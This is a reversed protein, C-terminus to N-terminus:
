ILSSGQEGSVQLRCPFHSICMLSQLVLNFTVFALLSLSHYLLLPFLHIICSSALIPSPQRVKLVIRYPGLVEGHCWQGGALHWVVWVPTSLSRRLLMPSNVQQPRALLPKEPPLPWRATCRGREAGGAQPFLAAKRWRLRLSPAGLAGWFNPSCSTKHMLRSQDSWPSCGALLLTSLSSHGPLLSCNWLCRSPSACIVPCPASRSDEGFPDCQLLSGLMPLPGLCSPRHLAHTSRWAESCSM